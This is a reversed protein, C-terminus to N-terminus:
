KKVAECGPQKPNRKCSEPTPNAFTSLCFLMLFTALILRM